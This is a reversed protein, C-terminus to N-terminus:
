CANGAGRPSVGLHAFASAGLGEGEAIIGLVFHAVEPPEGQAERCALNVARAARPSWGPVVAETRDDFPSSILAVILLASGELGLSSLPEIVTPSSSEALVAM